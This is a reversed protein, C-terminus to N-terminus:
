RAADRARRVNSRYIFKAMEASEEAPRGTRTAVHGRLNRASDRVVERMGIAFRASAQRAGEPDIAELILGRIAKPISKGEYWGRVTQYRFGSWRSFTTVAVDLEDLRERFTVYLFNDDSLTATLLSSFITGLIIGLASVTDSIGVSSAHFVGTRQM